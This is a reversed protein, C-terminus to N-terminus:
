PYAKKLGALQTTVINGAATARGEALVQTDSNMLWGAWSSWMRKYTHRASTKSLEVGNQYFRTTCNHEVFDLKAPVLGLTLLWAVGLIFGGDQDTVETECGTRIFTGQAPPVENATVVVEKFLGTKRWADVIEKDLGTYTGWYSATQGLIIKPPAAPAKINENNWMAFYSACGSLPLALALAALTTVRM